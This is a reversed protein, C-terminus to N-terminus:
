DPRGSVVSIERPLVSRRGRVSLPKALVPLCVRFPGSSSSSPRREYACRWAPPWPRPPSPQLSLRAAHAVIEFPVKPLGRIARQPPQWNRQREFGFGLIWHASSRPLSSVARLRASAARCAVRSRGREFYLASHLEVRGASAYQSAPRRHSSAMIVFYRRKIQLHPLSQIVPNGSM